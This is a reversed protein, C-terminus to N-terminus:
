FSNMFDPALPNLLILFYITIYVTHEECQYGKTDVATQCIGDTNFQHDIVSSPTARFNTRGQATTICLLAISVLCVAVNAMPLIHNKRISKPSFISPKKYAKATYLCLNIPNNMNM